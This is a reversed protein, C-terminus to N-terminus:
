GRDVGPRHDAWPQGCDCFTHDRTLEDAAAHQRELEAAAFLAAMSEAIADMHRGMEVRFREVSM